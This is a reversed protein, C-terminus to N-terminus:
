KIQIASKFSQLAKGSDLSATAMLVCDSFSDSPHLVQLAFASNALVVNRQEVTARQTLVNMFIRAASEVSGGGEISVPKIQDFGLEKVEMLRDTDNGFVRVPSTLSVEDYGDITHVIRYGKGGAAQLLYHYRRATCLSNVGLLQYGPQAPNTLPGLLNFFTRMGLNRRISGLKKMVPHFLPAHLFCIGAQDLQKNLVTADNSFSYGLLELVNSAGSISSAAYNGHKVVKYGAGAVVFASLTSINFTNKGDGGTGVIDIADSADITLPVSQELLAASFGALEDITPQRMMFTSIFSVIQAENVLGSTIGLLVEKAEEESLTEFASLRNLVNRMHYPLAGDPQIDITM